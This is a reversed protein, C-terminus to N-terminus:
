KEGIKVKAEYGCMPCFNVQSGYEDNDAWLTGDESEYCFNIAGGWLGRKDDEPWPILCKHLKRTTDTEM